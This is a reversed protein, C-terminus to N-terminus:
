KLNFKNETQELVNEAIVHFLVYFKKLKMFTAM